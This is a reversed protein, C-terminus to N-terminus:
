KMIASIVKDMAAEQELISEVLKFQTRCRVLNHEAYSTKYYTDGQLFDMLFRLGQEYCITKGSFVLNGIEDANLFDKAESLYGGAIAEFLPLQVRVETLDKEDEPAPCTMTRVMDGFDYLALGPMVTDLDIVCLGKSGAKDILVNNIKTDNHTVREPIRGQELLGVLKGAIDKNAFAFEIEAKAANCRDASDAEVAKEFAEFRKPTNHFDPITEHLRRVDIDSLYKQFKGFARAAEYAQEPRDLTEYTITDEIFEYTRWYECDDDLFYPLGDRTPVVTMTERASDCKRRIHETVQQINEMVAPPNLFVNRNIKQHIYRSVGRGHEYAAVFTDNILGQGFPKADLFDGPIDFQVSIHRLDIEV